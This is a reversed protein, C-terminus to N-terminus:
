KSASKILRALLLSTNIIFAGFVCILVLVLCGAVLFAVVPWGAAIFLSILAYRNPYMFPKKVLYFIGCVGLAFLFGAAYLLLNDIM